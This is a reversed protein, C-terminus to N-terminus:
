AKGDATAAAAYRPTGAPASRMSARMRPIRRAIQASAASGSPDTAPFLKARWVPDSVSSWDGLAAFLGRLRDLRIGGIPGGPQPASALCVRDLIHRLAFPLAPRAIM